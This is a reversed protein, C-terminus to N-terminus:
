LVALSAEARADLAVPRADHELRRRGIRRVTVEDVEDPVALHAIHRRGVPVVSTRWLRGNLVARQGAVTTDVRGVDRLGGSGAAKAVAEKRTWVSYFRRADFGAWIREAESLYLPFDRATLNGLVEVDVGVPGRTSVACVVRGDCHSLSFDVPLDLTPRSQPLYRLSALGDTAFGLGALGAALLRSGLLSRHRAPRDSWGAIQDRRPAPLRALWAAEIVPSPVFESAILVTVSM